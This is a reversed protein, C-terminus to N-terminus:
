ALGLEARVVEDAHPRWIKQDIYYHHLFVGWYGVLFLRAGLTGPAFLGAVPSVGRGLNVVVYLLSAAVLGAYVLLPRYGLGTRDARRRNAALVVGLYQLGHVLGGVIAVALFFQEPDTPHAVLPEFRGIVFLAFIQVGVAPLLTFLAPRLPAGRVARAVIVVGYGAILAGLAALGGVLATRAWLPLDAALGMAVRSGPNGLLFLLMSGWLAAYLFGVDIRRAEPDPRAHREYIALIGYHQRINHHFSWITAFLLYLDLPASRGALEAAALALFGPLLWGLSGLLLRARARRSSADLYTRTYTAVLHPGDVLALWALWLFATLGPLALVAGGLAVALVGSGFFFFADWRPGGIYAVSQV